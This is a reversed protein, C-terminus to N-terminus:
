GQSDNPVNPEVLIITCALALLIATVTLLILYIKRNDKM